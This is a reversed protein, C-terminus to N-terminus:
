RAEHAAPDAESLAQIHQLVRTHIAHVIGDSWLQWYVEPFIELDYQTTGDLRTKGDPLATLRFEGRKSTMFGHLHPADVRDWFSLERMPAPNEKVDFALVNPADWRTIPEVFAGTSFECYRTAGVGTGEIRARMPYAVGHRFIWETPPALDPFTVVHRFVVDPPADVVVSTTVVHSADHPIAKEAGAALPLMVLVVGTRRASEATAYVGSVAIALLSGLVSMVGAPVMAMGLCVLGESACCLLGIGTFVLSVIGWIVAVRPARFGPTSRKAGVYAFVAVFGMVFPTAIFLAAGYSRLVYVCVGFMGFGVASSTLVARVARLAASEPRGLDKPPPPVDISAARYPGADKGAFTAGEKPPAICLALMLLYHVGPILFLFGLLPPLGADAARRVSMSVGLWLFPLAWCLLMWTAGDPAGQLLELRHVFFPSLFALPTLPKGVWFAFMSWEIAYKLAMFLVGGGIYAARSVPVRYGFWQALLSPRAPHATTTAAM